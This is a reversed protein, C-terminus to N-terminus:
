DPYEPAVSLTISIKAGRMVGQFGGSQSWISVKGDRGAEAMLGSMTKSRPMLCEVDVLKCM